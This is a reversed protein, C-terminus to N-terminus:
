ERQRYLTTMYGCSVFMFVWLMSLIGGFCLKPVIAMSRWDALIMFTLLGACFFYFLMASILYLVLLVNFKQTKVGHVASDM